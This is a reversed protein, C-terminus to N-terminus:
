CNGLVTQIVTRYKTHFANRAHIAGWFRNEAANCRDLQENFLGYEVVSLGNETIVSQMTAEHVEKEVLTLKRSIANKRERAIYQKLDLAFDCYAQRLRLLSVADPGNVEHKELEIDIDIIRQFVSRLQTILKQISKTSMIAGMSSKVGDDDMQDVSDLFM